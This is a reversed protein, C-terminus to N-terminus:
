AKLGKFRRRDVEFGFVDYRQYHGSTALNMREATNKSLDLEQIILQKEEYLPAMITEGQPGYISSGGRLLWDSTLGANESITLGEPLESRHMMQGVAIVHCRGEIAYHRSALQHIDKAFPWLAIHLDEGADHMAQRALPMWHEWCILSGLKGFSTNISNLGHGDGLGHVLKETYTPMLKRHHNVVEGKNNFTFIANYLTHNGKGTEVKENAGIVAHMNHQALQQQIPKLSNSHIDISNHYTDAWLKKIPPHDWLNVDDCIDLWIPYGSLWSEGFVILDVKQAAVTSILDCTKEITKSLDNYVPGDQVIAVKM